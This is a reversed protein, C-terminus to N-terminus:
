TTHTLRTLPPSILTKCRIFAVKWYVTGKTYDIKDLLLSNEMLYHPRRKIIQAELKLQLITIAKHMQAM